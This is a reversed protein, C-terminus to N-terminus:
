RITGTTAFGCQCNGPECEEFLPEMVFEISRGDVTGTGTFHWDGPGAEIAAVPSSELEGAEDYCPLPVVEEELIAGNLALVTTIVFCIRRPFLPETSAHLTQIVVSELFTNQEFKLGFRVTCSDTVATFARPFEPAVTDKGGCGSVGLFPLLLLLFTLRRM